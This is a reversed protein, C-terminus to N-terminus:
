DMVLIGHLKSFSNMMSINQQRHVKSVALALRFDLHPISYARVQKPRRIKPLPIM